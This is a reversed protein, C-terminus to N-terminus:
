LCYCFMPSTVVFCVCNVVPIFFLCGVCVCICVGLLSCPFACVCCVFVSLCVRLFCAGVALVSLVFLGFMVVVLCTLDRVNFGIVM